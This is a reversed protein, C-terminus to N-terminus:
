RDISRAVSTPDNQPQYTRPKLPRGLAPEGRRLLVAQATSTQRTTRRARASGTEDRERQDRCRDGREAWHQREPAQTEVLPEYRGDSLLLYGARDHSRARGYALVKCTDQVTILTEIKSCSTAAFNSMHSPRRPFASSLKDTHSTSQRERAATTILRDGGTTEAFRSYERVCSSDKRSKWRLVPSGLTRLGFRIHSSGPNGAWEASRQSGPRVGSHTASKPPNSSVYERILFVM